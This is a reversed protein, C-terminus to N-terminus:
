NPKSAPSTITPPPNPLVEAAGFNSEFETGEPVIIEPGIAGPGIAGGPYQGFGGPPGLRDLIEYLMKQEMATDRGLPIWGKTM